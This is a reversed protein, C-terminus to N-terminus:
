KNEKTMKKYLKKVDKYEMCYRQLFCLSHLKKLSGLKNFNDKIYKKMTDEFTLEKESPFLSFISREIYEQRGIIIIRECEILFNKCNLQKCTETVNAGYVLDFDLKEQLDGIYVYFKISSDDYTDKM